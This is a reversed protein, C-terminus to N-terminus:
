WLRWKITNITKILVIHLMDLNVLIQFHGWGLCIYAQGLPNPFLYGVRYLEFDASKELFSQLHDLIQLKLIEHFYLGGVVEETM